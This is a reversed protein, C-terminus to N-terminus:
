GGYYVQAITGDPDILYESPMRHPADDMAPPNMKTSALARFLPGQHCLVIARRPAYAM